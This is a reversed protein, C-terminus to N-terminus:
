HTELNFISVWFFQLSMTQLASIFLSWTLVISIAFVVFIIRVVLGDIWKLGIWCNAPDNNDSRSTAESMIIRAGVTIIIWPLISVLHLLYCASCLHFKNQKKIRTLADRSCYIRRDTWGDMQIDCVPITHFRSCINDFTKWWRTCGDNKNESNFGAKCFELPLMRLTCYICTADWFNTEPAIYM